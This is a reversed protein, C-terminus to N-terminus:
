DVVMNSRQLVVGGSIDDLSFLYEGDDSLMAPLRGSVIHEANQGDFELMTITGDRVDLLHYDDLWEPEGHRDLEYSYTEGTEIDYCSVKGDKGAMVFRGNDSIEMWDIGGPSSLYATENSTEDPGQKEKNLPDPYVAVTEGRAIALYDVDNIRSFDIKTEDDDDYSKIDQVEGDDYISVTQTTKDGDTKHSLFAIRSNGYLVYKTVNSAIPASISRNGYDIKRLDSGTIAFIVNGNTGSFHPDTLDMGFDKTLNRTDKDQRDYELHEVKDDYKHEILIYRSSMDWEVISYQQSAGTSLQSSDLSIDSYEVDEPNDMDILMMAGTEDDTIAIAWKRDPSQVLDDIGSFTHISETNVNNPVLRVYDLWRVTSPLATVTKSWNRYGSLSMSVVTQGTKVNSRTPTRSTLREDNVDVNAGTPFTNFQLLAVQSLGKQLDFRYGMAWGICIIVGVITAVAMAGYTFFRAALRKPQRTSPLDTIQHSTSKAASKKKSM